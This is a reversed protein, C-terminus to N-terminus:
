CNDQMAVLCGGQVFANNRASTNTESDTEILRCFNSANPATFFAALSSSKDHAIIRKSKSCCSYNFAFCAVIARQRAKCRERIYLQAPSALVAKFRSVKTSEFLSYHYCLFDGFGGLMKGASLSQALPNSDSFSTIGIGVRALRM